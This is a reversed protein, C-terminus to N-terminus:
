IDHITEKNKKVYGNINDMTFKDQSLGTGRHFAWKDRYFHRKHGCGIEACPSLRPNIGQTLFFFM